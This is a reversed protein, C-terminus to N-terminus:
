SVTIKGVMDPVHYDCQFDFTGKTTFKVKFTSEKGPNVMLDSTFDKGEKAESLVHMNHIAQGTNKVHIEVEKGAAVKLEKPEFVNDKLEVEIKDESVSGGDGNSGAPTTAAATTATGPTKVEVTPTSSTSDDGGCAAALMLAGGAIVAVALARVSVAHFM